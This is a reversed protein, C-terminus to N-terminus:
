CIRFLLKKRMNRLWILIYHLFRHQRHEEMDSHVAYALFNEKKIEGPYSVVRIYRFRQFTFNPRYEAEGKGDCIYTLTEKATRLNETYVNGRSDLTEFYNLVVKEGSNGCVKVHVWGTLNQGFDLVTDGQPTRFIEKVAIPILERVKCGTQSSLKKVPYEVRHVKLDRNIGDKKNRVPM